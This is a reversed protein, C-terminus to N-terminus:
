CHSITLVPMTSIVHNPFRYLLHCMDIIVIIQGRATITMLRLCASLPTPAVDFLHCRRTPMAFLCVSLPFGPEPDANLSTRSPWLHSSTQAALKKHGWLAAHKELLAETSCPFGTELRLPYFDLKWLLCNLTQSERHSLHSDGQLARTSWISGPGAWYMLIVHGGGACHGALKGKAELQLFSLLSQEGLYVSWWLLIM